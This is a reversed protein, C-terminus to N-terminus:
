SEADERFERGLRVDEARQRALMLNRATDRAPLQISEEAAVGASLQRVRVVEADVEAGFVLVLNTIYGWLLLVLAGGLWGYVRDYQGVTSIYAVFGVTALAWSGIAFVAGYSVWRFRLHRVNPTFYYLAGVALAALVALVPWKGINWATLWPEGIGLDDGVSAAVRPTVLLIAVIATFVVFLLVALAVMISRFKWVQRGEEVEYVSNVARGFATAYGSLTWITVILGITLATGPNTVSFLEGLPGEVSEVTSERTLEDIIALISRAADSKGEALGFVSVIVLMSPFLALSGFFTLAAASDIGRHRLFGHWARKAAYAWM